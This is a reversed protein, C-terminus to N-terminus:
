GCNRLPEKWLRLRLHELSRVVCVRVRVHGEYGGLWSEKNTSGMITFGYNYMNVGLGCARRM